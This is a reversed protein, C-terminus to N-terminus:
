KRKPIPGEFSTSALPPLWAQKSACWTEVTPAIISTDQLLGAKVITIDPMSAATTTCPSGCAPCFHRQISNGSDATDDFVALRGTVSVTGSRCILNESFASGSQRQCNKCHCIATFLPGNLLTIEIAGCLCTGHITM